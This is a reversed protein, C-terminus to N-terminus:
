MGDRNEGKGSRVTRQKFKYKLPFSGATESFVQISPTKLGSCSWEYLDKM